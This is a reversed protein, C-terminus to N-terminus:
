MHAPTFSIQGGNHINEFIEKYSLVAGMIVNLVLQHHYDIIKVVPEFCSMFISLSMGDWRTELSFV